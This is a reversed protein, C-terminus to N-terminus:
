LGSFRLGPVRGLGLGVYSAVFAAIARSWESVAM